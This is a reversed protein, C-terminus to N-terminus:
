CCPMNSRDLDIWFLELSEKSIASNIENIFDVIQSLSNDSVMQSIGTPISDFTKTLLV